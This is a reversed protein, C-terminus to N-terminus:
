VSSRWIQTTSTFIFFTRKLVPQILVFEISAEREYGTFAAQGAAAYPASSIDDVSGQMPAQSTSQNSGVVSTGTLVIAQLPMPM